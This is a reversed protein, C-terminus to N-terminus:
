SAMLRCLTLLHIKNGITIKAMDVLFKASRLRTDQEQNGLNKIAEAIVAATIM